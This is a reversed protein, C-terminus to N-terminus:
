DSVLPAPVLPHAFIIQDNPQLVFNLSYTGFHNSLELLMTNYDNERMARMFRAATNTNVKYTGEKKTEIIRYLLQGPARVFTHSPTLVGRTLLHWDEVISVIDKRNFQPAIDFCMSGEASIQITGMHAHEFEPNIRVFYTPGPVRKSITKEIDSASDRRSFFLAPSDTDAFGAKGIQYFKLANLITKTAQATSGPLVVFDLVPLGAIRMKCM